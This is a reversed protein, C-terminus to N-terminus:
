DAKEDLPTGTRWNAKWVVSHSALRETKWGSSQLKLLFDEYNKDMWSKSAAHLSNIEFSLNAMVLAHIFSQVVDAAKSDKHTVISVRGKKELLLYKGKKYYCGACRFLDMMDQPRVSSVKVGLHIRTYLFNPDRWSWPYTWVPLVHELESVQKPSLVQGTEMFHRLLISSREFNLNNLSLSRVAMYNAFMHFMTLSLFCLWMALSHGIMIRALLMGLAMGVMTAVTEQSGEKASIDAANDQLSFHQTLAARTAGSAVGTFSRSLSGLCLIFMFASPFLPSLLDMLMGFDNMLDAVLRWMKADSDLNSGQYFTFLIGGLMGTLDRLFWQFTAGVVTASKEGVGIASLLAQTSLMTRIYTSLGQLSDWVQFPIYDPTVSSPFGEPVFASLIRSWAIRYHTGFRQIAISSSPSSPTPSSSISATLSLKASSSGNWEEVVVVGGDDDDDGDKEQPRRRRWGLSDM